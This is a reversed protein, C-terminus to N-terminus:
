FSLFCPYTLAVGWGKCFGAQPRYSLNDNNGDIALVFDWLM